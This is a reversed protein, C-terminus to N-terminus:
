PARELFARVRELPWCNLVQQSGLWARRATLIGYRMDDLGKVSHADTNIVVTCGARVARMLDIDNADLRSPAANCEVAVRAEAAAEFVADLDVDYPDRRGLLRGSPHALVNVQPHRLARVMRETQEAQPLGFHSHVSAVVLDLRVLWEEDLDLRGDKLIDVELGRLLVPTMDGAQARAEDLADLAEWQRALKQADLGGTMRLAQSHDTVAAYAYGRTACARLMAEVTDVGDSWTTHWHLDGRVDGLEVLVPLGASAAADIEGRDERLEPPIWELGLERYVDAEEAAALTAGDSSRELGYESLKLGRAVARQRLTVNHSKSGTFYLLAAGFSGDAVVRLDVQLGGELLVSTKTDGSALVERVLLSERLAVSPAGPEDASAVLDVDGVTERGRRLSGALVARQVGNAARVLDVLPRALADVDGLRFRSSRNRVGEIGSLVKAQSATGFGPLSAVRGARAERELSDLDTVGLQQWLTHARKPGVGPVQVVQLLGLPVRERLAELQPLRGTLVLAAVGAAIDKGVGKLATLDAERAVMASISEPHATITEAATRYARVRFANAGEIALLDAVRELREAIEANSAHRSRIM